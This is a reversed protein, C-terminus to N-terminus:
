PTTAPNCLADVGTAIAEAVEPSAQQFTWIASWADVGLDQQWLLDAKAIAIATESTESAGRRENESALLVVTTEFEEEFNLTRLEREEYISAPFDPHGVRLTYATDPELPPGAYAVVEIDNVPYEWIPDPDTDRYLALSRPSGQIIFTPRDSWVQNVVNPEFNVLCFDDGRKTRPDENADQNDSELLWDLFSADNSLSPACRHGEACRAVSRSRWNSLSADTNSTQVAVSALALGPFVAHAIIGLLNFATIGKMM